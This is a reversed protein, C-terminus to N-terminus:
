DGDKYPLNLNKLFISGMTKGQLFKLVIEVLLMRSNKLAIFAGLLYTKNQMRQAPSVSSNVQTTFRLPLCFQCGITDTYSQVELEQLM